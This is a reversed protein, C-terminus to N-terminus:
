WAGALDIEGGPLCALPVVGSRTSRNGFRGTSPDRVYVEVARSELDVLWYEFVGSKEYLSRKLRRDRDRTSPSLIEVVLDPAGRVCSGEIRESHDTLVVLLDPQVIDVDSLVVDMPAVLVTGRGTASIVAHLRVTLEVLFRQHGASPSPTVYHEGDLIEHRRGDEPFGLYDAYTLQIRPGGSGSMM